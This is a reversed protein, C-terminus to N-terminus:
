CWYVRELSRKLVYRWPKIYWAPCLALCSPATFGEFAKHFRLLGFHVIKLLAKPSAPLPVTTFWLFPLSNLKATSILSCTMCNSSCSQLALEGYIYLIFMNQGSTVVFTLLRSKSQDSLPCKLWSDPPMVQMTPWPIFELFIFNNWDM